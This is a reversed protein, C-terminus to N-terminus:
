LWSLVIVNKYCQTPKGMAGKGSTGPGSVKKLLTRYYNRMSLWLKKMDEPTSLKHKTLLAGYKDRMKDYVAQWDNTKMTKNKYFNQNSTWLGRREKVLYVLQGKM